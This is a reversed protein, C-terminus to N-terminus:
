DTQVNIIKLVTSGKNQVSFGHRLGDGEHVADFEYYTELLFLKPSAITDASVSHDEARVLLIFALIFILFLPKSKM